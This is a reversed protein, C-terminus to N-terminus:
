QRARVYLRMPIGADAGNMDYPNLFRIHPGQGLKHNWLGDADQVAAHRPKTPEERSAYVLVKEVGEQPQLMEPTILGRYPVFGYGKYFSDQKEMTPEPFIFQNRRGVSNAICNFDMWRAQHQTVVEIQDIKNGQLNPYEKSSNLLFTRVEARTKADQHINPQGPICTQPVSLHALPKWVIEVKRTRPNLVRVAAQQCEDDVQQVVGIRGDPLKCAYGPKPVMSPPPAAVASLRFERLRDTETFDSSIGTEQQPSVPAGKRRETLPSHGTLHVSKPLTVKSM